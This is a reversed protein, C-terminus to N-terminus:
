LYSDTKNNNPDEWCIHDLKMDNTLHFDCSFTTINAICLKKLTLGLIGNNSVKEYRDLWLM